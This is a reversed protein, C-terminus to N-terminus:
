TALVQKKERFTKIMQRGQSLLFPIDNQELFISLVVIGSKIDLNEDVWEPEVNLIISYIDKMKEGAAEIFPLLLEKIDAERPRLNPFKKALEILVESVIKLLKTTQKLVLSKIIFERDKIKITKPEPYLIEIDSAM